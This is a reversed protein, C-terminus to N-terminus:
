DLKGTELRRVDVDQEIVGGLCAAARGRCLVIDRGEGGAFCDGAAAIDPDQTLMSQETAIGQIASGVGRQHSALADVHHERVWWIIHPDVAMDRPEPANTM